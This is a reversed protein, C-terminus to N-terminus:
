PKLTSMAALRRALPTPALKRTLREPSPPSPALAQREFYEHLAITVIATEDLHRREAEDEIKKKLVPDIRQSLRSTKPPRTM